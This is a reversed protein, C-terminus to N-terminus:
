KIEHDHGDHAGYHYGQTYGLRWVLEKINWLIKERLEDIATEYMGRDAEVQTMAANERDLLEGALREVAADLANMSDM